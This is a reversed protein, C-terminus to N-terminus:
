TECRALGYLDQLPLDAVLSGTLAILKDKKRDMYENLDELLEDFRADCHTLHVWFLTPSVVKVVRAGM